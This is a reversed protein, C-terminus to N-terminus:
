WYGEKVYWVVDVFFFCVVNFSYVSYNIYVFFIFSLNIMMFSMNLMVDYKGVVGLFIRDIGWIVKSLM